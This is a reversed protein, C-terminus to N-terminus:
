SRVAIRSSLVRSAGATTNMLEGLLGVPWYPAYVGGDVLVRLGARRM